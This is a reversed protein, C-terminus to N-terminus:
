KSVWGTNGTGSEKVYFCQGAAGDTCHYTSGINASVVGEPSGSGYFAGVTATFMYKTACMSRWKTTNSGNDYTETQYPYFSGVSGIGDARSLLYKTPATVGDGFYLRGNQTDFEIRSVTDARRKGMIKYASIGLSWETNRDIDFPANADIVALAPQVSSTKTQYSTLTNNGIIIESGQNSRLSFAPTGVLPDATVKVTRGNVGRGSNLGNYAGQNVLGAAALHVKVGGASDSTELRIGWFNIYAGGLRMHYQQTFGELSGGWHNIDNIILGTANPFVDFHMVGEVEVGESSSHFYRGGFLDWRNTWGADNGVKFQRNVKNNRLYGADVINYGCGVSYATHQIGIAFDQVLRETIKTNQVNVYRIGIGQGEWGTIPKTGNVVDPLIIRQSDLLSLVTTPNEGVGTSVEVAIPIATTTQIRCRSGDFDGKIVVKQSIKFTGIPKCKLKNDKCYDIKMQLESTHDAAASPLFSYESKRSVETFEELSVGTSDFVKGASPLNTLSDIISDKLENVVAASPYSRGTPSPVGGVNQYEVLVTDDETSRVNYYAGAVVGTGAAVGAEPTFYTPITVAKSVGLREVDEIVNGITTDVYTKNEAVKTDTYSNAASAVGNVQEVVQAVKQDVVATINEVNIQIQEEIDASFPIQDFPIKGNVLDAKTQLSTSLQQNTYGKADQLSDAISTEIADKTDEIHEYLGPIETYDPAHSPDLRGEPSLNAKKALQQNVYEQSPFQSAISGDEPINSVLVEIKLNNKM